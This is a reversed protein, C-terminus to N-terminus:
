TEGDDDSLYVGWICHSDAMRKEFPLIWRNRTSLLLPQRQIHVFLDDIRHVEFPGDPSNGRALFVGDPENGSPSAPRSFVTIWTNSLPSRVSAGPFSDELVHTTWSVGCDTSSLYVPRVEEASRTEPRIDTGYIRIEGDPLMMMSRCADECPVGMIVPAFVRFPHDANPLKM